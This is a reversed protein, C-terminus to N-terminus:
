RRGRRWAPRGDEDRLTLVQAGKRIEQAVIVQQGFRVSKAGKVDVLDGAALKVPQEDLWFSPGVVVWVTESGASLKLHVGHGRRGQGAEVSEVKGQVTTVTSPDFGRAGMGMGWGGGRRPGGACAQGGGPCTGPEATDARLALPIALAGLVGLLALKKFTGNM